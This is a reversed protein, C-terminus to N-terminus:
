RSFYVTIVSPLFTGGIKRDKEERDWAYSEQCDVLQSYATRIAELDEVQSKYSDREEKLKEM